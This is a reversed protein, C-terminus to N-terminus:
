KKLKSLTAFPNNDQKEQAMKAAMEEESIVGLKKLIADADDIRPFPDIALYLSQAIAEGIDIERGNYFMVECDEDELQVESDKPDVTTNEMFNIIIDEEIVSKITAGTAVCIQDIQANMQGRMQIPNDAMIINAKLSYIAPLDFRIALAACQKDNAELAMINQTLKLEALTIIYSFESGFSTGQPAQMLIKEQPTESAM